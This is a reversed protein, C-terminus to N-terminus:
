LDLLRQPVPSAEILLFMEALTETVLLVVEVKGPHPLGGGGGGGETISEPPVMCKERVARIVSAM